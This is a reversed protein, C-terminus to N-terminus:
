SLSSRGIWTGGPLIQDEEVKNSFLTEGSAPLVVSHKSANLCLELRQGAEEKILHILRKEDEEVWYIHGSRAAPNEKRIQILQKMRNLNEEYAGQEIKEWPMCRRCDPDQAGEMAIETGYYICVSGQMLFLLALQQYFEAENGTRTYLRETDHSDLLNFLVRNTQEYYMVYCRNIDRELRLADANKDIFFNHISEVLPYNMVSDYEDGRLWCISDHWIEGLLYVQPNIAKLQKRLEKLFTHSVENGVDFRIGDIQWERLWYSCIENFYAIVKPNNTNLKPMASYFAFSDYRGDRTSYEKVDFPWHHIFFWDFYPSETGNKLVDQWPEFEWGCHNFVADLMIHIGAKHAKEVLEKLDKESGLRPDICRYDWTNYRHNSTSKFIPTLYIGTIGLEQLYPLKEIMGRIDGGYWDDYKVKESKWPKVWEPDCSTDGNCFRDPFIQYWITDNVWEPTENVDSPNMWPFFFYQMKRGPLELEERTYCGDEYLYVCETGDWIKFFYRCRKYQPKLHFFWVKQYALKKYSEAEQELGMWEENGGMIGSEFPDEYCISVGTVDYGTMLRIELTEKDLAFCASETARHMIYGRDM